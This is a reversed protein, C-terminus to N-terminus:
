PGKPCSLLKSRSKVGERGTYEMERKVLSNGVTCLSVSFDGTYFVFLFFLMVAVFLGGKFM